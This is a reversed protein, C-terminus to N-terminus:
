HADPSTGLLHNEHALTVLQIRTRRALKALITRIHSKVTGESVFLNQGIETNSLGKAALIFVQVERASLVDLIKTNPRPSQIEQAQFLRHTDGAAVVSQGRHVTRIAALLFDPEASKLLFGSAGAQIAQIVAQDQNYTTLGIIRPAAGDDDAWEDLIRRTAQVGDLIPMRVDMLIVHPRERVALSVANEGDGAEGCFRMDAQSQILMRLGSRFLRQDDVIAVGITHETSVTM